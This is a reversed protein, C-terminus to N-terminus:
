LFGCPSNKSECQVKEYLKYVHVTQQWTKFHQRVSLRRQHFVIEGSTEGYTDGDGGAAVFVM